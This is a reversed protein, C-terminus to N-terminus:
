HRGLSSSSNRSTAQQIGLAQFRRGAEYLITLIASDDRVGKSPEQWSRNRGGQSTVPVGFSPPLKEPQSNAVAWVRRNGSSRGRYPEHSEPVMIWPSRNSMMCSYEGASGSSWAVPRKRAHTLGRRRNSSGAYLMLPAYCGFETM